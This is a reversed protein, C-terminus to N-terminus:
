DGGKGRNGGQDWIRCVEEDKIITKLLNRTDCHKAWGIWSAIRVRYEKETLDKKNLKAAKRCLRRKISKRMLIHTHYFKYGVFDIGRSTVPFVQYNGKLQLNLRSVLYDNIEVLLGHLYPKNGSLIVMDDAYRYYYKM